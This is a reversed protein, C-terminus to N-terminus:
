FNNGNLLIKIYRTEDIIQTVKLLEEYFWDEPGIESILEARINCKYCAARINIPSYCYEAKGIQKCYAQPVYHMSGQAAEGCGCIPHPNGEYLERYAKSRRQDITAQSIREGNSTSYKNAMGTTSNWEV